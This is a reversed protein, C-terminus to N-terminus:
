HLGNKIARELMVFAEARTVDNLPRITTDEYGKIISNQFAALVFEKAWSPISQIDAFFMNKENDVRLSFAKTIIVATECRNIYRDPRFTNDDYGKILNKMAAFSIYESAWVPIDKKDSFLTEIKNETTFGIAKILITVMEARTIKSDPKITGDPYGSVIGANVLYLINEAAWHSEIDIYKATAPLDSIPQTITDTVKASPIVGESPTITVTPNPTYASKVNESVTPTNSATPTIKSSPSTPSVTEDPKDLVTIIGKAANVKLKESGNGAYLSEISVPIEGYAADPKVTFVINCIEASDTEQLKLTGASAIKIEGKAALVNKDFLWDAIATCKSIDEEFVSLSSSDYKVTFQIGSVDKPKDLSITLSVRDNKHGSGSSISLRAEDAAFTNTFGPLATLLVLMCIFISILNKVASKKQCIM